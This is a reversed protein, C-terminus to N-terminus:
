STEAHRASLAFVAVPTRGAIAREVHNRGKGDAGGHGGACVREAAFPAAM